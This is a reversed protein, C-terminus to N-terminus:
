NWAGTRVLLDVLEPVEVGLWKSFQDGRKGFIRAAEDSDEADGIRAWMEKLIEFRTRCKIRDEEELSTAAVGPGAAFYAADVWCAMYGWRTDLSPSADCRGYRPTERVLLTVPAVDPPIQRADMGQRSAGWRGTGVPGGVDALGSLAQGASGNAGTEDLGVLGPIAADGAAESPFLGRGESRELLGEILASGSVNGADTNTHLGAIRAATERDASGLISALCREYELLSRQTDTAGKAGM